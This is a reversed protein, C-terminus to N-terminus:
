RCISYPEEPTPIQQKKETMFSEMWQPQSPAKNTKLMDQWQEDTMRKDRQLFEYYGFTAGRNLYLKGGIPVVVFIEQARAVGVEFYGGADYENPAVTHVDAIMAMNKDTESTLEFWRLDDGAFSSMLYELNGGYVLLEYYEQQTLEENKLEKLSCDRLFALLQEFNEMKGKM